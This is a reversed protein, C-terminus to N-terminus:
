KGFDATIHPVWAWSPPYKKDGGIKPSGADVPVWHGSAPAPVESKPLGIEGQLWAWAPPQGAGGDVTVWLGPLSPGGVPPKYLPDDPVVPLGQPKRKGSSVPFPPQPVPLGADIYDGIGGGGWIQLPPQPLSNDIVPPQENPGGVWAMVQAVTEKWPMVTVESKKQNTEVGVSGGCLFPPRM